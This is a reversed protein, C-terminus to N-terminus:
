HFFFKKKGLFGSLSSRLLDHNILASNNWVAEVKEEELATLLDQQAKLTVTYRRINDILKDLKVKEEIIKRENDIDEEGITFVGKLSSNLINKEKFDKNYVLTELTRNDLWNITCNSQPNNLLKSITTKGSGNAGYIFNVKELNDCSIGAADYTGINRIQFSQIM